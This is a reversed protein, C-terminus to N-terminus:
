NHRGKERPIRVPTIAISDTARKAPAPAPSEEIIPRGESDVLVGGVIYRGGQTTEAM